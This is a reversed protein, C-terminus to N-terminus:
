TGTATLLKFAEQIRSFRERAVAVAAEGMAEVRGFRFMATLSDYASEIEAQTASLSVGLVTRAQELTMRAGPPGDNGVNEPFGDGAVKDWWALSSPDGPESFPAGTITQFRKELLDTGLYLADAYFRLIHNETIAIHRDAMSMTIALDLFATRLERSEQAVIRIATEISKSDAKRITALADDTTTTGVGDPFHSAAFELESEDLTGDSAAVWLLLLKVCSALKEKQSQPAGKLKSNVISM